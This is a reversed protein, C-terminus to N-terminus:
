PPISIVQINMHMANEFKLPLNREFVFYDNKDHETIYDILMKKTNALEIKTNQALTIASAIHNKPIILFHHDVVPGKPLAVYLDKGITVIM